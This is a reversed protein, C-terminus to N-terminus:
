TSCKNYLILHKRNLNFGILYLEAKLEKDKEKRALKLYQRSMNYIANIMNRGYSLHRKYKFHKVNNLIRFYEEKKGQTFYAIAVRIWVHAPCKEKKLIFLVESLDPLQNFFLDIKERSNKLPIKISDGGMYGIGCYNVNKFYNKCMVLIFDTLNRSRLQYRKKLKFNTVSKSLQMYHSSLYDMANQVQIEEIKNVVFIVLFKKKIRRLFESKKIISIFESKKGTKFYAVAIQIWIHLPSKEIQLIKLIDTLTPLKDTFIEVAAKEVTSKLPILISGSGTCVSLEIENM